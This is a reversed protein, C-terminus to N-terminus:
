ILAKLRSCRRMAVEGSRSHPTAGRLGGTGACGSSRPHPTAGKPRQGQGRIHPLEEQGSFSSVTSVTDSKM